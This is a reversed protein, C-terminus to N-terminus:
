NRSTAFHIHAYSAAVNGKAFGASVWEGGKAPRWALPARGLESANEAPEASSWHFEHGRFVTGPKAFPLEREARIERYGLSRLRHEMSTAVPIAGCMARKKGDITTLSESLYMLGGCEAYVAGGNEAFEAIASRMAANRELRDAFCEPFGGGIYIWDIADPLATDNLPSFPVLEWGAARLIDLNDEYYFHFAEDLALAM